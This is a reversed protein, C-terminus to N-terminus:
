VCGMWCLGPRRGGDSEAQGWVPLDTGGIPCV